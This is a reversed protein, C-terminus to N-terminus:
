FHKYYKYNKYHKYRLKNKKPKFILTSLTFLILLVLIIRIILFLFESKEVDHAAILNVTYEVGDISYTATGVISGAVIPASLNDNLSITPTIQDESISNSLLCNVDEQVLVDLNKTDKTGNSITVQTLIDNESAVTKISYNNYAYDFMSITDTYRNSTPSVQSSEAGLVVSIVEFNDKNSAAILCNKAESTYGTKIGITYEYYYRSTALLMDNTNTFTRAEHKNTAPINSTTQSVFSRFTDNQMCYQAIIALDRATSYHEEDQKGYPNTFHTNTCGLELAKANMMAVFSEISGGVYMALVNAADNASHVLMVDLLNEVSIEEDAKLDAISYGSPISSIANYNVTVIEDLDCNEITLIATLIKTTSAPYMIQDANKEYLVKGSNAEILIAAPSGVSPEDTAFSYNNIFTISVVAILLFIKKMKNKM